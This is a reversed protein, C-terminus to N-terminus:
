NAVLIIINPGPAQHRTGGDTAIRSGHTGFKREREGKRERAEKEGKGGKL